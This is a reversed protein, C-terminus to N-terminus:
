SIIYRFIDSISIVGTPKYCEENDCVFIRHVKTSAILGIAYALKSKEFVAISPVQGVISLSRLYKLYQGIPKELVALEPTQLFLGLDKGTTVGVLRGMNDLLAIGSLKKNDMIKFASIVSETDYITAINHHTGINIEAVSPGLRKVIDHQLENSLLQIITSQSIINTVKGDEVVPVRHIRNQALINVVKLLSDLPSVPHFGNRRSFYTLTVGETEPIRLLETGHTVLEQFNAFGRKHDYLYVVFSVLDRVDLFGLYSKSEEDYVPSSLISNTLLVQFSELLPQQSDLIHIKAPPTLSGVLTNSLYSVIRSKIDQEM